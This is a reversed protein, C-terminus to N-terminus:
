ICYVDNRRHVTRHTKFICITKGIAGDLYLVGGNGWSIKRHGEIALENGWQWIQCDGTMKWRVLEAKELM